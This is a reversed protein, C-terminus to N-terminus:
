DNADLVGSKRELNVVAVSYRPEHIFCCTIVKIKVFSLITLGITQAM